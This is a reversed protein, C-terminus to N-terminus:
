CKNIIEKVEETTKVRGEEYDKIGKKIEYQVYLTCLIEEFIKSDEISVVTNLILQKDSTNILSDDFVIVIRLFIM